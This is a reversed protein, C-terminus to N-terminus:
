ARARSLAPGPFGNVHGYKSMKLDGSKESM